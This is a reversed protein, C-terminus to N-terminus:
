RNCARGRGSCYHHWQTNQTHLLLNLAPSGFQFPTQIYLYWDKHCCCRLTDTCKDASSGSKRRTCRHMGQHDSGPYCHCSNSSYAQTNM